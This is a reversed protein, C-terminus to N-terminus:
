MEDRLLSRFGLVNLQRNECAVSHKYQLRHYVCHVNMTFALDKAKNIDNTDM